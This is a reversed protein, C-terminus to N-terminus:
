TVTAFYFSTSLDSLATIALFSLAWTWVQVTHAFVLVFVALALLAVIRFLPWRKEPLRISLRGFMPVSPAVAAVHTMASLTLLGTGLLMQQLDSV